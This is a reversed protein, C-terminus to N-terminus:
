RVPRNRGFGLAQLVPVVFLFGTHPEDLDGIINSVLKVMEDVKEQTEVVSFLTRHHIESSSFLDRLGPMLPLDDRGRQRLRGLGSSELITVGSVGAAEWADLVSPCDDPDDVILVVLYSM